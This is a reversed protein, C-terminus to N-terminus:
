SLRGNQSLLRLTEFANILIQTGGQMRSVGVNLIASKAQVRFKKFDMEKSVRLSPIFQAGRKVGEASIGFGWTFRFIWNM